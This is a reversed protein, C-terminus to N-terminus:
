LVSSISAAHSSVPLWSCASSISPDCSPLSSSSSPLVHLAVVSPDVAVEAVPAVNGCVRWSNTPYAMLSMLSPPHQSPCRGTEFRFSFLTTCVTKDGSHKSANAKAHIVTGGAVKHGATHLRGLRTTTRLGHCHRGSAISSHTQALHGM